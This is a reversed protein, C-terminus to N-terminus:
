DRVFIVECCCARNEGNFGTVVSIDETGVLAIWDGSGEIGRKTEIFNVGNGSM